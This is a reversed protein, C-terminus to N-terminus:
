CFTSNGSASGPSQEGISPNTRAVKATAHELQRDSVLLEDATAAAAANSATRWQQDMSAGTSLQKSTTPDGNRFTRCIRHM